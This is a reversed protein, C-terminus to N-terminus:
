KISLKLGPTKTIKPPNVTVLEGTVTDGMPTPQKIAKLLAERDSLRSKATQLDSHLREWTPDGCVSYDYETRTDAKQFQNGMYEFTTGPFKDAETMCNEKIEKLIRESSKEFAKLQVYVKLPSEEGNKVSEIVQDSFVDIQVSTSALLGLVGNATTPLQNEM